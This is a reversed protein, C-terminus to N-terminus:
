QHTYWYTDVHAVWIVNGCIVDINTNHLVPLSTNYSDEESTVVYSLVRSFNATQRHEHNHFALQCYSKINIHGSM